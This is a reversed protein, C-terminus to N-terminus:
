FGQEWQVAVRLQMPSGVAGSVIFETNM